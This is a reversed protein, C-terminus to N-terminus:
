LSNIDLNPKRLYVQDVNNVKLYCLRAVKIKLPSKQQQLEVISM